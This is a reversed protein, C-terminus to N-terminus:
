CSMVLVRRFFQVKVLSHENLAFMGFRVLDHVSCHVSSAGPTDSKYPASRAHTTGNYQAAARQRLEENMELACDTMDLPQFIEDHLFDGYSKGSV